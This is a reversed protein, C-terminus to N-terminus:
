LGVFFGIVMWYSVADVCLPAREREYREFATRSAFHYRAEVVHQTDSDLRVLEADSAGAAIVDAVHLVHLRCGFSRTLNQGYVLAKQSTEGFDYAALVSNLQIM